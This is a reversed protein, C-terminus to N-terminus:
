SNVNILLHVLHEISKEVIKENSKQFEDYNNWLPVWTEESQSKDLKQTCLASLFKIYETDAKEEISPSLYKTIELSLNMHKLRLDQINEKLKNIENIEKSDKIALAFYVSKLNEIILLKESELKNIDINQNKLLLDILQKRTIQDGKRILFLQYSDMHEKALSKQLQNPMVSRYVVNEVIFLLKNDEVLQINNSSISLSELIERMKDLNSDTQVEPELINDDM